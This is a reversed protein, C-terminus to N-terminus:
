CRSLRQDTVCDLQANECFAARSNGQQPDMEERAKRQARCREQYLRYAIPDSAINALRRRDRARRMAREHETTRDRDNFEADKLEQADKRPRMVVRDSRMLARLKNELDSM